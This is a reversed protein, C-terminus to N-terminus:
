NLLFVETSMRQSYIIKGLLLSDKQEKGNLRTPEYRTRNKRPLIQHARRFRTVRRSRSVQFHFNISIIM